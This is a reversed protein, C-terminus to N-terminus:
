HCFVIKFCSIVHFMRAGPFDASFAAAEGAGGDEQGDQPDIFAVYLMVLRDGLVPMQGCRYGGRSEQGCGILGVVSWWASSKIM